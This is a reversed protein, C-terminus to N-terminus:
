AKLEKKWGKLEKLWKKSLEILSILENPSLNNLEKENRKVRLYASYAEGGILELFDKKHYIKNSLLCRILYLERLRLVVSYVIGDPIRQNNDKCIKVSDKNIKLVGAIESLSKRINFNYRKTRYKEILEKNLIVKMEKLLSLYNLNKSLNKSFSSESVFLIEYNNYTLLKDTNQTVILIDIDSNFDFDKRAHSGYLYIGKVEENLNQEFLCGIIDQLIKEKSPEFLTVVVKKNLWSRPLLVGASTGVERTQKTITEM